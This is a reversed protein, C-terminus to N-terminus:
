AVNARGPIIQGNVCQSEYSIVGQYNFSWCGAAGNLEDDPDFSQLAVIRYPVVVVDGAELTEPVTRLYEIRTRADGTPLSARVKDARILGYNTLTLEGQFVDGKRMMPLNISLPEIMVLATPVNTQFTANLIIEYRDELTIEKVSWEVTVLKSMLFVREDAVVGPKIWLQGSLDDHDWASIRYNYEGAPIDSLLVQGKADTTGSFEASLVNRNQLKIRAGKLGLI